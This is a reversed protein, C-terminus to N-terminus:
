DQRLATLPDVRAAREAPIYGALLAVLALLCTAGALVSPDHTPVGFLLSQTLKALPYSVPLAIAVGIGILVAVESLVLKLVSRRDAGLAMRIGIERTRQTVTYSMVGYLGIAALLTALLGFFASLGSIIRETFVSDDIQREMTKMESVPLDSDIEHVAQRLASAVTEPGQSTRVYFTKAGSGACQSYPCFVFEQSKERLDAYKGNKVIGVIEVPEKKNSTFYFRQGLPNRNEFYMQVFAENVIAVRPATSGDATTFERGGLLPTGLSSFYGPSVSNVHPTRDTEKRERGPLEIGGFWNAGTLLATNSLSATSVGPLERIRDLLRDFLAV